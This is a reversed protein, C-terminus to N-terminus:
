HTAPRLRHKLRDVQRLLADSAAQIAAVPDRRVQAGSKLTRRKVRLVFSAEYRTDRPETRELFAELRIGDPRFTKLRREISRTKRELAARLRPSPDLNKFYFTQIM